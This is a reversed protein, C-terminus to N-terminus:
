TSTTNHALLRDALVSEIIGVVSAVDVIFNHSTSGAALGTKMTHQEM